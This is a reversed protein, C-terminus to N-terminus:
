RKAATPKIFVHRKVIAIAPLSRGPKTQVPSTRASVKHAGSQESDDDDDDDDEVDSDASAKARKAVGKTTVRPTAEAPDLDEADSASEGDGDDDEEGEEAEDDDEDEDEDDEDVEYDGDGDEYDESNGESWDADERQYEEDDEDDDDEDDDEEDEDDEDEEEEQRAVVRPATKAKKAVPAAVPEDVVTVDNEGDDPLDREEPPSKPTQPLMGPAHTRSLPMHGPKKQKKDTKTDMQPARFLFGFIFGLLLAASIWRALMRETVVVVGVRAM